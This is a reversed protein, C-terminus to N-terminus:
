VDEDIYGVIFADEDCDGRREKKRLVAGEKLTTDDHRELFGLSALSMDNNHDETDRAYCLDINLNIDTHCTVERVSCLDINLSVDM